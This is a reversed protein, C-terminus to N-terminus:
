GVSLAFVKDDLVTDLGDPLACFHEDMEADSLAAWIEDDTHKGIPDLNLKVSEAFIIPVQQIVEIQRRVDKLQYKSIDQGDISINGSEISVLRFLCQMISSKGAGTRGVLGVKEGPKVDFTLKKLALDYDERYRM